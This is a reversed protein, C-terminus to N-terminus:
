NPQGTQRPRPADCASAPGRGGCWAAGRARRPAGARLRLAAAQRRRPEHGAPVARAGPGSISRLTVSISCLHFYFPPLFSRLRFYFLSPILAPASIYCPPLLATPPFLVPISRPRFRLPPPFLTSASIPRPRFYLPPPFLASASISSLRFYVPPPFIVSASISRPPFLVAVSISHPLLLESFSAGAARPKSRM